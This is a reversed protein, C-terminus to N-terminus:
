NLKPKFDKRNAILIVVQKKPRDAQFVKKKKKENKSWLHHRDKIVPSNRPPM